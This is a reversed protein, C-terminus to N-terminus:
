KEKREREERKDEEELTEWQFSKMFLRILNEDNIVTIIVLTFSPCFSSTAMQPLRPCNATRVASSVFQAIIMIMMTMLIRIKM